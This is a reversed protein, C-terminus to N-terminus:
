GQHEGPLLWASEETSRHLLDRDQDRREAGLLQWLQNQADRETSEAPLLVTVELVPGEQIWILAVRTLAESWTSPVQFVFRGIVQWFSALAAVALALSAAIAVGMAVTADVRRILTVITSM